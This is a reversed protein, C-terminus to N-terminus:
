DGVRRADELHYYHGVMLVRNNTNVHSSTKISLRELEVQDVEVGGGSPLSVEFYERRLCNAEIESKLLKLKSIFCGVM